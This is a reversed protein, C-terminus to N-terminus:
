IIHGRVEGTLHLLYGGLKYPLMIASRSLNCPCSWCVYTLYNILRSLNWIPFYLITLCNLLLQTKTVFEKEEIKKKKKQFIKWMDVLLLIIPASAAVWTSRYTRLIWAAAMLQWFLHRVCNPFSIGSPWHPIEAHVPYVTLHLTNPLRVKDRERERWFCFHFFFSWIIELHISPHISPYKGDNKVMKWMVGKLGSHAVHDWKKGNEEDSRKIRFTCCPPM